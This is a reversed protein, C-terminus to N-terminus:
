RLPDPPTLAVFVRADLRLRVWDELRLAGLLAVFPKIGLETLRGQWTGRVELTEGSRRGAVDFAIRRPVGRLHLDGSLQGADLTGVYRGRLTVVPFRRADLVEPGLLADRMKARDSPAYAAPPDIDKAEFALDVAVDFHPGEPLEVTWAPARATLIPDHGAVRLLGASRLDIHVCSEPRIEIHM